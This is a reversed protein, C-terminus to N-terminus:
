CAAFGHNYVVVPYLYVPQYVVYYISHPTENEGLMKKLRPHLRDADIKYFNGGPNDAVSPFHSVPQTATARVLIFESMDHVIYM